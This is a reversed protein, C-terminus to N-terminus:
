LNINAPETIKLENISNQVIAKLKEPIEWWLLGELLGLYQGRLKNYEINVKVASNFFDVIQQTEDATITIPRDGGYSLSYSLTDILKKM